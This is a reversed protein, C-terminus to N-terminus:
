CLERDAVRLTEKAAVMPGQGCENNGDAILQVLSDELVLQSERLQYWDAEKDPDMGARLAMLRYRQEAVQARLRGLVETDVRESPGVAM